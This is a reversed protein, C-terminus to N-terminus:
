ATPPKAMVLLHYVQKGAEHFARVCGLLRTGALAFDLMIKAGDRGELRSRSGAATWPTGDDETVVADPLHRRLAAEFSEVVKWDGRWMARVDVTALEGDQFRHYLRDFPALERGLLLTLTTKGDDWLGHLRTDPTAGWAISRFRRQLLGEPPPARHADYARDADTESIELCGNREEPSAAIAGAALAHATAVADDSSWGPLDSVDIMTPGDGHITSV